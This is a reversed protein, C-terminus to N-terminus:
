KIIFHKHLIELIINHNETNWRMSVAVASGIVAVSWYNGVMKETEGIM